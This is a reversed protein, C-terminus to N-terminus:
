KELYFLPFFFLDFQFPSNQLAEKELVLSPPDAKLKKEKKKFKNEKFM